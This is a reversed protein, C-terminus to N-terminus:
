KVDILRLYFSVQFSDPVYNAKMILEGKCSLFQFTFSIM